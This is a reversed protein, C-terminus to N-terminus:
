IDTSKKKKEYPGGFTGACLNSGQGDLRLIFVRRIKKRELICINLELTTYRHTSLEKRL